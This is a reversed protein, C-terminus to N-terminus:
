RILRKSQTRQLYYDLLSGGSTLGGQKLKAMGGCKHCTLLDVGGEVSKWSHGCKPCTITRNLFSGGNKKTPTQWNPYNNYFTGPREYANTTRLKDMKLKYFEKQLQPEINRHADNEFNGKEKYLSSYGKPLSKIMDGAANFIFDTAGKKYLQKHHALEAIYDSVLSKPNNSTNIRQTFPNYHARYVDQQGSEQSFTPSFYGPKSHMSVRPNPYENSLALLADNEEQSTEQRLLDYFAQTDKDKSAYVKVEPLEAKNGYWMDGKMTGVRGQDLLSKYYASKKAICNGDINVFGEPCVTELGDQNERLFSGGNEFSGLVSIMEADQSQKRQIEDIEKKSLRFNMRYNENKDENLDTDEGARVKNRLLQYVNSGKFSKESPNWDYVDTYLIGEPDDPDQWYRGRGITSALKYGPNALSNKITGLFSSKGRNFWQNFDDSTGYGQGGYDEYETGGGTTKGSRKKANQVTNWLILKQDDSLSSNSMRADKFAVKALMQSVNDPLPIMSRFTDASKSNVKKYPTDTAKKPKINVTNPKPLYTTAAVVPQQNRYLASFPVCIGNADKLYGVKCDTETGVQAKPIDKKKKGNPLNSYYFHLLASDKRM